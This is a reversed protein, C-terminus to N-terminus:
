AFLARVAEVAFYLIFIATVAWLLWPIRRVRGLAAQVVTYAIVGAGVGNTISYTFPMLAITLFAPVAIALDDWPINKVQTMMLAGVLVLAPAAAAAPVVTAIPTFLLTLAFVTGTVVAALGTRAGEGVGAASEVFVTNASSSTVGGLAGAVGDVTLIAGLRPVRGEEDVLGAEDSVGIITGMADFFGSLVLTFLVVTATIAGARTFGGFVDVQGVLGFDPAGVVAEPVRPVVVGWREPPITFVTNVLVALVATAVIGILIAGRVRRVYLVVMLLLGVCFLTVPWGTLHGTAGLQVPSGTGRGVFGADVLGILTIFLGIGVSIAHKLALPISNMIIQRLGSVALLVIILGELVVLGMAQAWTMYPAAQYAVVANLGLGAAVGFPANGVLGILLTSLAAALITSTTLQPISLKAGTVDAAGGLIIPNLLIIYAMAMFTTIGGRVERGITTGRASLEFFRDM